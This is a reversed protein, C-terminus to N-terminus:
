IDLAFMIRRNIKAHEVIAGNMRKKKGEKSKFAKRQKLKIHVALTVIVIIAILCAAGTGILELIVVSDVKSMNSLNM